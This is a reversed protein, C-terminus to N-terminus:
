GKAAEWAAIRALASDAAMDCKMALNPRNAIGDESDDCDAKGDCDFQISELAVKCAAIVEAATPQAAERSRFYAVVSRAVKGEWHEDPAGPLEDSCLMRYVAQVDDDDWEIQPQAAERTAIATPGKCPTNHGDKRQVVGCVRCVPYPLLSPKLEWTHAIHEQNDGAESAEEFHRHNQTVNQAHWAVHKEIAVADVVLAHCVHCEVAAPNTWPDIGRSILVWNPKM